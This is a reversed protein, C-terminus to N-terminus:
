RRGKRVVDSLATGTGARRAASAVKEPDPRLRRPAGADLLGARALRERLRQVEDSALDPDLAAGLVATAYSNISEGRAAARDRLAIALEEDVRLSLQKM